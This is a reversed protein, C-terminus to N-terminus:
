HIDHQQHWQELMLLLWVISGYYQPHEPLYHEILDDVFDPRIVRRSKLNELNERVFGRLGAHSVAWEGFPLGFGHKSKSLTEDPLYGRYAEKFFYRLTQGRVKLRPALRASFELLEDTLLPYAVDVGALRCGGNVKVLDNDALVFKMDLGLMKNVISDASVSQYEETLLRLPHDRSIRHLFEPEFIREADFHNLFNYTQSRDPMPIKAQEIYRSIKRLPAVHKSISTSLLLPELIRERAMKPIRGYLAFLKQKAYRENGGFLEDGGDGGLLLEIGDERAMRACFYTPIASSNGFPEAFTRAIEPVASVIDDPTVMYERHEVGFHKAALRAYALEDYNEVDFGISYARTTDEFVESMVGTITSSDVGGSLFAGVESTSAADRVAQRVLNRLEDRSESFQGGDNAGRYDIKWYRDTTIVGRKGQLYQGPRLRRVCSYVSNPAPVFHFYVFDFFAQPDIGRDFGPYGSLAAADPGFVLCDDVQAYAVPNVGIRDTAVFAEEGSRAVVAANFSGAIRSSVDPGFEEYGKILASANGQDSAHMKLGPETWRFNGSMAATFGSHSGINSDPESMGICLAAAPTVLVRTDGDDPSSMRRGM